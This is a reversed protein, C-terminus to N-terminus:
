KGVSVDSGILQTLVGNSVGFDDVVFSQVFSDNTAFDSLKELFALVSMDILVVGILAIQSM